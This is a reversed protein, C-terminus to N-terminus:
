WGSPCATSLALCFPHAFVNLFYLIDMSQNQFLSDVSLYRTWQPRQSTSPLGWIIRNSTPLAEKLIFSKLCSSNSFAPMPIGCSSTSLLSTEIKPYFPFLSECIECTIITCTSSYAYMAPACFALFLLAVPSTRLFHRLTQPENRRQLWYLLAAWFSDRAPALSYSLILCTKGGGRSGHWM